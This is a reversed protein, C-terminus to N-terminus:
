GSATAEDVKLMLRYLAEYEKVQKTWSFDQGMGNLMLQHWAPQDRFTNLARHLAELMAEESYEEFLFGTGTGTEPDWPQVSDALGGTARVVPVTGYHLSYMQNLGCPEYLSPMLFLDSGAEIRHALENSYGKYFSVKRPYQQHLLRFLAEFRAEGTGLVVLRLDLRDLLGPVGAALLQIGKQPVLRSVV